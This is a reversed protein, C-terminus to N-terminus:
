MMRSQLNSLVVLTGMVMLGIVLASFLILQLDTRASTKWSIHLFFRLHVLMQVLGLTLILGFTALAALLRWYVAAFAATTLLLSLVYGIAYGRTEETREAHPDSM